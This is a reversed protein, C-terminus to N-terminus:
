ADTAEQLVPRRAAGAPRSRTRRGALLVLAGPLTAVLAMVGYVVATTVGADVGLGATGFAWAAMGERPGWGAVNMPLAVALLVVAALPMLVVASAPVGAVHAALLFVLLHGTAAVASTVAIGRRVRRSRLIDRLDAGTTSAARTRVRRSRARTAVVAVLCLVLGAAALAAAGGAARVPSPLLVLVVLTLAVQVVQGLTREWVVSRVGPGVVGGGGAHALARDVDGLVGGPLTANLFQSRYVATVATWPRLPVGLGESVLHWRWACCWTTLATLGAAALLSGASTLRLGDLFPGAGVRAVLVWLVLAGAAPRLWSWLTRREEPSTQVSIVVGSPEVISRGPGVRGGAPRNM